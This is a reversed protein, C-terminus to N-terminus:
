HPTILYEKQILSILLKKIKWIFRHFRVECKQAFSCNYKSNPASIKTTPEQFLLEDIRSQPNQFYFEERASTFINDIFLSNLSRFLNVSFQISFAQLSHNYPFISFLKYTM